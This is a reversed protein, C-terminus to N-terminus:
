TCAISQIIEVAFISFLITLYLLVTLFCNNNINKKSVCITNYNTQQYIFGYKNM